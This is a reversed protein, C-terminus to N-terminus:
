EEADFEMFEENDVLWEYLEVLTDTNLTTIFFSDSDISSSCYVRVNDGDIAIRDLTFSYDYREMDELIIPTDDFETLDLEKCNHNIMFGAIYTYLAVRLATRQSKIDKLAVDNNEINIIKEM